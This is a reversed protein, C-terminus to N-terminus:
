KEHLGLRIYLKNRPFEWPVEPQFQPQMVSVNSVMRGVGRPPQGQNGPVRPPQGQNGFGIPQQGENSHGIPSPGQNGPGRPLQGQNGHANPSPTPAASPTLPSRRSSMATPDPLFSLAGAGALSPQGNSLRHSFLFELIKYTALTNKLSNSRQYQSRYTTNVVRSSKKEYYAYFM